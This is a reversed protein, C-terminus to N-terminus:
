TFIVLARHPLPIKFSAQLRSSSTLMLLLRCRSPSRAHIETISVPAATFVEADSAERASVRKFAPWLGSVVLM